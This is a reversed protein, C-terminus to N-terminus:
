KNNIKVFKVNATVYHGNTLQYRSRSGDLVVARVKLTQGKKVVLVRNGQKFNVSKYQYAGKANVVHVKKASTYNFTKHTKKLQKIMTSKATVYRGNTLQFRTISGVKVVRRVKLVTGKRLYHVRKAHKFKSGTYEYVGKKSSIYWTGETDIRYGAKISVFKDFSKLATVYSGDRLVFRTTDGSTDIMIVHLVSGKPVYALKKAKAFKKGSYRYMGHKTIITDTALKTYYGVYENQSPM